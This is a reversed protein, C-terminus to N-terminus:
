RVPVKRPHHSQDNSVPLSRTKRSDAQDTEGTLEYIDADPYFALWAFAFYVGSDVPTLLKGSYIGSRGRKLTSLATLLLRMLQLASNM